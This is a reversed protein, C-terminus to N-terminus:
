IEDFRGFFWVLILQIFLAVDTNFKFKGLYKILQINIIFVLLCLLSGYFFPWASKQLPNCIAILLMIANLTLITILDIKILHWPKIQSDTINKSVNINISANPDGKRYIQYQLAGNKNTIIEVKDSNAKIIHNNHVLTNSSIKATTKQMVINQSMKIYDSNAFQFSSSAFFVALLWIYFFCLKYNMGFLRFSQWQGKLSFWYKGFLWTISIAIPTTLCIALPMSTLM